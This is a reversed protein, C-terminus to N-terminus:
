KDDYSPHCSWCWDATVISM